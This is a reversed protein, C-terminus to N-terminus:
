QESDSKGCNCSQQILDQLKSLYCPASYTVVMVYLETTDSGTIEVSLMPCVIHGGHCVARNYRIRYNRCIVHPLSHSWWSMCSQQILDQLESLCCPASWTVVMVYLETTDSGTSKVSLMPCVMRGGHCVARNYRIRYNQCIVHPLGHSWWSM